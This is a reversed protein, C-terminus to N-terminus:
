VGLLAMIRQTVSWVEAANLEKGTIGFWTMEGTFLGAVVGNDHHCGLGVDSALNEMAVYVGNINQSLMVNVGDLYVLLGTEVGSGDYTAVMVHWDTDWLINSSVANIYAPVSQDYCYFTIPSSAGAGIDVWWEIQSLTDDRKSILTCAGLTTRYFACVLSFASDALGTGFTFDANDPVTLTRAPTASNMYYSYTKGWFDFMNRLTEGAVGDNGKVSYDPLVLGSAVVGPYLARVDGMIELVNSITDRQKNIPAYGGTNSVSSTTSADYVPETGCTFINLDRLTVYGSNASIYIGYEAAGYIFINYIRSLTISPSGHTIHICNGAANGGINGDIYMDSISNSVTGSLLIVNDNLGAAAYLYTSDGQGILNVYSPVSLTVYIMYTGSGLAVTGGTALSGAYTLASQIVIDDDVGAVGHDIYGGDRNVAVINVGDIFVLAEHSKKFASYGVM